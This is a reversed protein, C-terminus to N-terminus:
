ATRGSRTRVSTGRAVSTMLGVGLRAASPRRAEVRIKSLRALGVLTIGGSGSARGGDPQSPIAARNVTAGDVSDVGDV